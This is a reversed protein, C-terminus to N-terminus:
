NDNIKDVEVAKFSIVKIPKKLNDDIITNDNRGKNCITYGEDRLENRIKTIDIDKYDSEKIHEWFESVPISYFQEGKGNIRKKINNDKIYKCFMIFIDLMKVEILENSFSELYSIKIDLYNEEIEKAIDNYINKSLIVGYKKLEILENKINIPKINVQSCLEKYNDNPIPKFKVTVLLNELHSAKSKQRELEFRFIKNNSDTIKISSNDYDFSCNIIEM